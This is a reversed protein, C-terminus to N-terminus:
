TRVRDKLGKGSKFVPVKRAPIDISKGTKPNRGKRAKRKATAFTGFGPITVKEDRDLAIAIIGKRPATEFLANVAAASQAKTLGTQKALKDILETKNM